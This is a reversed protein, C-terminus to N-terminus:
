AVATAMHCTGHQFPHSKANFVTEGKDLIGPQARNLLYANRAAPSFTRQPPLHHGIYQTHLQHRNIGCFPSGKTGCQQGTHAGTNVSVYLGSTLLHNLESAAGFRAWIRGHVLLVVRTVPRKIRGELMFKRGNSRYDTM